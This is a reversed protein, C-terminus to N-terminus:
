DWFTYQVEEINLSCQTSCTQNEAEQEDDTLERHIGCVSHYWGRHPFLRASKVATAQERNDLVKVDWSSEVPVPCRSCNGSNSNKGDNYHHCPICVWRMPADDQYERAHATEKVKNDHERRARSEARNSHPERPGEKLSSM